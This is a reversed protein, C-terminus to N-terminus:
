IYTDSEDAYLRWLPYLLIMREKTALTCKNIAKRMTNSYHYWLAIYVAESKTENVM